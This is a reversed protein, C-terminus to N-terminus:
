ELPVTFSSSSPHLDITEVVAGTVPDVLLISEGSSATVRLALRDGIATVSEVKAGPPLLIDAHDPLRSGATKATAGSSMRHVITVVVVGTGVVLLIGMGIVLAKLAWM